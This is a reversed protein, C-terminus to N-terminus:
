LSFLYTDDVFAVKRDAPADVVDAVRIEPLSQIDPLSEPVVGGNFPVVRCDLDHSLLKDGLDLCEERTWTGLCSFGQHKAFLSLDHAKDPSIDLIEICSATAHEISIHDKHFTRRTPTSYSPTPSLHASPLEPAADM